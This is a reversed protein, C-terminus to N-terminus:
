KVMIIIIKIGTMDSNADALVQLSQVHGYEAARMVPTRGQQDIVNPNAGMDLLFSIMSQNNKSAAIHLATDGNEPEPKAFSM